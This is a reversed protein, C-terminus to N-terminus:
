NNAFPVNEQTSPDLYSPFGEVDFDVSQDVIARGDRFLTAFGTTLSAYTESTQNSVIRDSEVMLPKADLKIVSASTDVMIIQDDPVNGHIFFDVSSPVPTKLNLTKDPSGTRRTKFEDLDLTDLAMTEGAIMTNPTRGIRSMRIFIRLLDRYTLTNITTIGIVPASESGNAQDGNILVDILLTDLSHGMKIGFDQLFISVVNLSVYDKVEDTIKIGKGVKYISVSKSGYSINGLPITEGENVRSAVAESINLHPMKITTQPVSQQAAILSTWIPAKRLGLRIADRWIEPVLWRVDEDPMSFLNQATDVAPNIGFSDYVKEPTCDAGFKDANLKLYERFTIDVPTKSNGRMSNMEYGMGKIKTRYESNQYKETNM